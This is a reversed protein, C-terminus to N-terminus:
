LDAGKGRAAWLQDVTPIFVQAVQGLKPRSQLATGAEFSRTPEALARASVAGWARKERQQM